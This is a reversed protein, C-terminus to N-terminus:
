EKIKFGIGWVAELYEVQTIKRIKKRINSIHVKLSSEDCNESDISMLDLLRTKTVVKSPNLLLEKMITYETRTLIIKNTQIKMTKNDELLEIEKYKLNKNKIKNSSISLQVQIRALLEIKEFPKTIYDNAGELLVKAKDVSSTKASIVIIPLTKNAKKVIDEGNIGPLMLDLLILDINDNEIISIAETGSYASIVIYHEKKLIDEIIKHITNDDEVVLIKKM